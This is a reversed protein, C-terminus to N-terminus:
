GARWTFTGVAGSKTEFRRPMDPDAWRSSSPAVEIVSNDFQLTSAFGAHQVTTPRGSEDKLRHSQYQGIGDVTAILTDGEEQLEIRATMPSLWQSILANLPELPGGRQGQFIAELERRQDVTTAEDIYLRATADGEFFTPGPFDYSLAVVRGDLNIGESSGHRIRVIIASACWGQDMIMLEKIGYWCPCLLNCSCSELYEGTITWAM